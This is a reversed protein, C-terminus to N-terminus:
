LSIVGKIEYAKLYVDIIADSSNVSIKFTASIYKGTKSPKLEMTLDPFLSEFKKLEEKPIIFKFLYTTPFDYHEELQQKFKSYDYKEQM